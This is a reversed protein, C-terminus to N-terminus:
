APERLRRQEALLRWLVTGIAITAVGVVAFMVILTEFRRRSDAIRKENEDILADHDGFGLVESRLLCAGWVAASM